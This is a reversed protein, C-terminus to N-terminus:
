RLRRRWYGPRRRQPELAIVFITAGEVAYILSFPYTLFVYRRTRGRSPWREPHETIAAIARDLERLFGAEAAPSRSAYWEREHEVEAAAEEFFEVSLKM